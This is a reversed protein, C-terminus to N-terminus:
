SARIFTAQTKFEDFRLLQFDQGFCESPWSKYEAWTGHWMILAAKWRPLQVIRFNGELFLALPFASQVPKPNGHQHHVLLRHRDTMTRGQRVGPHRDFDTADIVTCVRDTLQLSFDSRMSFNSRHEFIVRFLSASTRIISDAPRDNQRNISNFTECTEYWHFQYRSSSRPAQQWIPKFLWLSDCSTLM